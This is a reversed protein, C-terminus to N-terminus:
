DATGGDPRPSPADTGEYGLAAARERIAADDSRSWAAGAPQHMILRWARIPVRYGSRRQGRRGVAAAASDDHISGITAYDRVLENVARRVEDDKVQFRWDTPIEVWAFRAHRVCRWDPALEELYLDRVRPEFTGDAWYWGGPARRLAGGLETIEPLRVTVHVSEFDMELKVGVGQM